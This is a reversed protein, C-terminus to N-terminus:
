WLRPRSATPQTPGDPQALVGGETQEGVGDRGGVGVVGVVGIRVACVACTASASVSSMQSTRCSRFPGRRVCRSSTSSVDSRARFGNLVNLVPFSTGPVSSLVSSSFVARKPAGRPAGRKTNLFRMNRSVSSDTVSGTNTENDYRCSFRSKRSPRYGTFEASAACSQASCIWASSPGRRPCFSGMLASTSASSPEHEGCTRDRLADSTSRSSM